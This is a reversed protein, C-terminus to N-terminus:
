WRITPLPIFMFALLFELDLSPVDPAMVRNLLTLGAPVLFLGALVLWRKGHRHQRLTLLYLTWLASVLSRRAATPAEVVGPRPVADVTTTTPMLTM